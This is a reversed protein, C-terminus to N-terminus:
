VIIFSSYGLRNVANVIKRASSVGIDDIESLQNGEELFHILTNITYIGCGELATRVKDSVELESIPLNLENNDNRDGMIKKLKNNEEFLEWYDNYPVLRM